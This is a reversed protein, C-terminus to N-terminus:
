VIEEPVIPCRFPATSISDFYGDEGIWEAVHARIEGLVAFESNFELAVVRQDQGDYYRLVYHGAAVTVVDIPRLDDVMLDLRTLIASFDYEADNIMVLNREGSGLPGYRAEMTERGLHTKAM